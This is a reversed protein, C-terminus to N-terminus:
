AIGLKRFLFRRLARKVMAPKKGEAMDRNDMAFIFSPDRYGAWKLARM